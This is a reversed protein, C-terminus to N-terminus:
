GYQYMLLGIYGACLAIGVILWPFFARKNYVPALDHCADCTAAGYRLWAGCGPCRYRRDAGDKLDPASM